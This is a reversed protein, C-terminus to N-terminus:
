YRNTLFGTLVRAYLRLPSVQLRPLEPLIRRTLFAPFLYCEVLNVLRALRMVDAVEGAVILGHRAYLHALSMGATLVGFADPLTKIRLKCRCNEPERRCRCLTKGDWQVFLTPADHGTHIAYSLGVPLRRFEEAATSDLRALECLAAHVLRLAIAIYLKRLARKM